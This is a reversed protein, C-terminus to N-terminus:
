SGPTRCRDRAQGQRRSGAAGGGDVRGPRHLLDARGPKIYQMTDYIALGATISGGPSNIYLAIDKEPNEAELFLMQAIVLSAIDDDIPRGLFIINDKLLRSYIDYAREGRNTQEVVMPVLMTGSMGEFQGPDAAGRQGNRDVLLNSINLPGRPAPPPPEPANTESEEVDQRRSPASSAVGAGTADRACGKWGATSQGVETASRPRPAEPRRAIGALIAEVGSEDVKVGPSRCRCRSRITRASSRGRRPRIRDGDLGLGRPQEGSELDIGQWASDPGHEHLMTELDRDGCARPLELPNRERLQDLLAKERTVAQDAKDMGIRTEVLTRLAALGSRADAITDIEFDGMTKAFDDDLDPFSTSTVEVCPSRTAIGTLTKGKATARPTSSNPVRGGQGALPSASNKRTPAPELRNRSAPAPEEADEADLDLMSAVVLDGQAAERDVADWEAFRRRM